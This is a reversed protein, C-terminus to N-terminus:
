YASRPFDCIKVAYEAVVLSIQSYKLKKEPKPGGALNEPISVASFV